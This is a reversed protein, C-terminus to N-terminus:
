FGSSSMALGVGVGLAVIGVLGPWGHMVGGVHWAVQTGEPDIVPVSNWDPSDDPGHAYGMLADRYRVIEVALCFALSRDNGAQFSVYASPRQVTRYNDDASLILVPSIQVYAHHDARGYRRYVYGLGHRGGDDDGSLHVVLGRRTLSRAGAEATAADGPRPGWLAFIDGVLLFSSKEDRVNTGGGRELWGVQISLDYPARREVGSGKGVAGVEDLPAAAAAANMVALLAALAVAGATPAPFRFRSVPSSPMPMSM